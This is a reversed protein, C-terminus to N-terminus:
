FGVEMLEPIELRGTLRVWFRQLLGAREVRATRQLLQRQGYVIHLPPGLLTVKDGPASIFTSPWHIHAEIREDSHEIEVTCRLELTKAM